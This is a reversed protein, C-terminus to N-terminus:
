DRARLGLLLAAANAAAAAPDAGQEALPANGEGAQYASTGAFASIVHDIAPQRRYPGVSGYSAGYQYVIRPNVARLTEYDIGLREPVGLRFNHVFADARAVLEHLIRRGREDKLNLALNEKGQM